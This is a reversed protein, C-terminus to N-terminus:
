ETLFKTVVEDHEDAHEWQPWHGADSILHYRSKPLLSALHEGVETPQGRNRDSWVVLASTKLRRADAESWGALNGREATMGFVRRMSANIDPDAYLKGYLDVLEDTVREPRAMFYELRARQSMPGPNTIAARSLQMLLQAGGSDAETFSREFHIYYSGSNLIIKGTREPYRMALEFAIGAGMSEGEVHAWRLGEADLLDVVAEAQLPIRRDADYGEKTSYGHYLADVAYVHFRRALRMVNRAFSEASNGVGHILVLPDGSGAEVARTTFRKGRILRTTSGLLAVHVSPDARATEVMILLRTLRSQRRVCAGAGPVGDRRARVRREDQAILHGAAYVYLLHCDPMREVYLRGNESPILQDEVGFLVLTPTEIESLRALLESEPPNQATLHDVAALNSQRM